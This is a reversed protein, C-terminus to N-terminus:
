GTPLRIGTGYLNEYKALHRQWQGETTMDWWLKANDDFVDPGFRFRPTVSLHMLAPDASITAKAADDIVSGRFAAELGPNKAAAQAQARSMGIAGSEYKAVADDVHSKLVATTADDAGARASGGAGAATKGVKMAAGAGIVGVTDLGITLAFDGWTFTGEHVKNVQIV